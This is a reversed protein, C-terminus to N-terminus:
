GLLADRLTTGNIIRALKDAYMPDTAYGAQQLSRAFDVGDASGLVPAFRANGGLVRAYDRLAEAYSGYARFTETTQVARGDVYETTPAAVTDGGWRRGAKVGFLNFSPSGDARRPEHRGWGSELAAHAVIFHPPVGLAAAAGVAHPWVREVFARPTDTSWDGAAELTAAAGEAAGVPTAVPRGPVGAAAPANAAPPLPPPGPVAPAAGGVVTGVAPGGASGVAAAPAALSAAPVTNELQRALQAEILRAFGVSGQSALAQTMQQDLMGTYLKTQESDLLGDAPTADRMSKMMMQLFYAEFQQAAAKIGARPDQRATARLDELARADLALRRTPDDGIM